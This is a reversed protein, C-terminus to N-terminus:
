SVYRYDVVVFHRFPPCEEASRSFFYYSSFSGSLKLPVRAVRCACPLPVGCRRTRLVSDLGARRLRFLQRIIAGAFLPLTLVDSVHDNWVKYGFITSKTRPRSVGRAHAIEPQAKGRRRRHRSAHPETTQLALPLELHNRAPTKRSLAPPKATRHPGGISSLVSRKTQETDPRKVIQAFLAQGSNKTRIGQM